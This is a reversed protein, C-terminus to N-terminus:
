QRRTRAFSLHLTEIDYYTKDQTNKKQKSLGTSVSELGVGFKPVVILKESEYIKYGVLM